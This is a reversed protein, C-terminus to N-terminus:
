NESNNEVIDVILKRYTMYIGTPFMLFPPNRRDESAIDENLAYM